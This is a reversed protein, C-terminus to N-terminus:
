VNEVGQIGLGHYVVEDVTSPDLSMPDQVIDSSHRFRSFGEEVISPQLLKFPFPM